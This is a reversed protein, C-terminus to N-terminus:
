LLFSFLFSLSLPFCASFFTSSFPFPFSFISHPPRHFAQFPYLYPFFFSFFPSPFSFISVQPPSLFSSSATNITPPLSPIYNCSFFYLPIFLILHALSHYTFPSTFLFDQTLWYLLPFHFFRLRHITQSSKSCFLIHFSIFLSYSFSLPLSPPHSSHFRIPPMPPSFFIYMAACRFASSFPPPLLFSLHLSPPLSPPNPSPLLPTM